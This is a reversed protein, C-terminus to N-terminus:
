KCCAAFIQEGAARAEAIQSASLGKAFLLFSTQQENVYGFNRMESAYFYAYALQSNQPLFTGRYYDWALRDMASPSGDAALTELYRKNRDKYDQVAQPDKIAGELDMDLVGALPYASMADAVGADAAKKLYDLSSQIDSETTGNCKELRRRNVEVEDDGRFMRKCDELLMAIQYSAVADGAGARQKLTPLLDAYVADPVAYPASHILKPRAVVPLMTLIQTNGPTRASSTIGVAPKPDEVNSLPATPSHLNEARRVLVVALIGTVLLAGILARNPKAMVFGKHRLM